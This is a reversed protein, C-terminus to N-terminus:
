NEGFVSFCIRLRSESAETVYPKITGTSVTSWSKKLNHWADPLQEESLVFKVYNDQGYYCKRTIKKTLSIKM